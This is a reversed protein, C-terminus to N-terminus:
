ADISYAALPEKLSSTGSFLTWDTRSGLSLGAPTEMLFNLIILYELFVFYFRESRDLIVEFVRCLGFM